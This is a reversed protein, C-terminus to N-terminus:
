AGEGQSRAEAVEYRGLPDVLLVPGGVLRALEALLGTRAARYASLEEATLQAPLDPNWEVVFGAPGVTMTVSLRASLRYTKMVARETLKGNLGMAAGLNPQPQLLCGVSRSGCAAVTLNRAAYPPHTWAHMCFVSVAAQM